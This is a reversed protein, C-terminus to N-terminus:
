EEPHNSDPPDDFAPRLALRWRIAWAYDEWAYEPMGPWAHNNKLTNERRTLVRLNTHVHLGCVMLSSLPVIHDVVYHDGTLESLLAATQYTRFAEKLDSWPLFARHLAFKRPHQANQSGQRPKPPKVLKRWVAEAREAPTQAAYRRASRTPKTAPQPAEQVVEAGTKPSNEQTQTRSRLRPKGKTVGQSM